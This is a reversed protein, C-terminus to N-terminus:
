WLGMTAFTYYHFAKYFLPKHTIKTYFLVSFVSFRLFFNRAVEASHEDPRQGLRQRVWCPVGDGTGWKGNAVSAPPATVGRGRKSVRYVACGGVLDSRGSRVPVNNGRSKHEEAGRDGRTAGFARGNVSGNVSWNTM